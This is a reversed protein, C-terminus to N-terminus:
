GDSTNLNESVSGLFFTKGILKNNTDLMVRELLAPIWTSESPAIAIHIICRNNFWTVFYGVHGVICKNYDDYINQV